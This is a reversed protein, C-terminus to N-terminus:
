MSMFSSKEATAWVASSSSFNDMGSMGEEPTQRVGLRYGEHDGDPSFKFIHNV